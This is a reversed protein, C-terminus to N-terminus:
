SVYNSVNKVEVDIGELRSTLWCVIVGVLINNIPIHILKVLYGIFGMILFGVAVARSIELFEVILFM